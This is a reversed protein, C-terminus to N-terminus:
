ELMLNPGMLEVKVLEYVPDRSGNSAGLEVHACAPALKMTDSLTASPQALYAFAAPFLLLLCPFRLALEPYCKVLMAYRYILAMHM